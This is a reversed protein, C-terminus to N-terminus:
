ASYPTRTATALLRPPERSIVVAIIVAAVVIVPAAAKSRRSDRSIILSPARAAVPARASKLIWFVARGPKGKAAEM